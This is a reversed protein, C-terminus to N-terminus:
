RNAYRGCAASNLYTKILQGFYSGRLYSSDWGLITNTSIMVLQQILIVM